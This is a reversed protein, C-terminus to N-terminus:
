DPPAIAEDAAGLNLLNGDPDVIHAEIMGWPKLSAPVYRPIGVAPLSLNQWERTLASINLIRVYASHWPDEPKQDPRPVFHLELGDRRIILYGQDYRDVEHFGFQHYFAATRDFDNSILIPVGSLFQGIM